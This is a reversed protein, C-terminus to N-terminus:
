LGLFHNLPKIAEHSPNGPTSGQKYVAPRSGNIPSWDQAPNGPVNVRHVDHCNLVHSHVVHELPMGEDDGFWSQILKHAAECLGLGGSSAAALQM